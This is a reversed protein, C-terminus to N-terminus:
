SRPARTLSTAELVTLASSGAVSYATRTVVAAPFTGLERLSLTWSCCLRSGRGLGQSGTWHEGERARCKGKKEWFTAASLPGLLPWTGEERQSSPACISGSNGQCSCENMKGHM